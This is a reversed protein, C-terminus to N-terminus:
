HQPRCPQGEGIGDVARIRKSRLKRWQDAVRNTAEAVTEATAVQAVATFLVDSQADIIEGQSAPNPAPFPGVSVGCIHGCRRCRKIVEMNNSNNCQECTEPM